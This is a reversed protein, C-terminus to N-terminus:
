CVMKSYVFVCGLLGDIVVYDDVKGAVEKVELGQENPQKRWTQGILGHSQVEKRLRAFDSVTLQILNVFGDSNELTLSYLGAHTITVTRQDFYHVTMGSDPFQRSDGVALVEADNVTISSFGQFAKGSEVVVHDSNAVRISV